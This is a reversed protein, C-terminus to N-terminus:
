VFPNRMTTNGIRVGNSLDESLLEPIQFTEAYAWLHADFWSLRHDTRGKLATRFVTENPYVISFQQLLKEAELRADAPSLLVTGDRMPRSVVAVFEILVQHPLSLSGNEVGARLIEKAVVPKEPFRFDFRYILVNTDVLSTM